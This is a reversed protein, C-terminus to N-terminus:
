SSGEGSSSHRGVSLRQNRAAAKADMAEYQADRMEAVAQERDRVTKFAFPLACVAMSIAVGAAVMKQNARPALPM